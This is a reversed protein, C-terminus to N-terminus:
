KTDAEAVLWETFAVSQPRREPSPRIQSRFILVIKTPAVYSEVHTYQTREQGKSYLAQCATRYYVESKQRANPLPIDM